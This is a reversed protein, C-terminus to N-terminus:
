DPEKCHIADDEFSHLTNGDDAEVDLDDIECDSLYSHRSNVHQMRIRDKRTKVQLTCTAVGSGIARGCM